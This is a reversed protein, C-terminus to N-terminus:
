APAARHEAVPRVHDIHLSGLGQIADAVEAQLRRPGLVTVRSMTVIM